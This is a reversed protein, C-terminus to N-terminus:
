SGWSPSCSRLATVSTVVRGVVDDEDVGEAFDEAEEADVLVVAVFDGLGHALDAGLGGHGAGADDGDVV